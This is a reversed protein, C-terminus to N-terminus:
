HASRTPPWMRAAHLVRLVRVLDGSVDYILIYNRHAVLERTGQVRGPRGLGPHDILRAASASLLEDLDLAASPNDVAIYKRIAKRDEQAPRTWVLKM